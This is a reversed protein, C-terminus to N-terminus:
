PKLELKLIQDSMASTSSQLAEIAAETKGKDLFFDSKLEGLRIDLSQLKMTVATKETAAETIRKELFTFVTLSGVVLGIISGITAVLASHAKPNM